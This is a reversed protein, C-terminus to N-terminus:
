LGGGPGTFATQFAFFDLLDVDDDGDFDVCECGPDVPGGPGTFCAQFALFDQLDVDGDSDCDGPLPNLSAFSDFFTGTKPGSAGRDMRVYHVDDVLGAFDFTVDVLWGATGPGLTGIQVYTVDDSSAWVTGSASSGAYKTIVLDDGPLDKIPEDFYMTISVGPYTHRWGAVYDNDEEDWAYGNGNVDADAPGTLWWTTDETMEEWAYNQVPGNWDFVDDAWYIGDVWEARTANNTAVAFLAALLLVIGKRM